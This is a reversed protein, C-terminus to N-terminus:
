LSSPLDPTKNMILGMVRALENAMFPNVGTLMQYFVIGVQFLDTSWDVDGYTERDFQEPAAYSFTGKTGISQSVSEDAMFKGIGWDAIKPIGDKTFLINEPKIDRHVCAMRHAYSLGDLIQLILPKAEKVSLRHDKLLGDLNGGEMLEITMYPVPRINSDLFTVINKHKLKRWIDAEAQFKKLVSSDITEDLFKPLKIAVGVGENNIAKYVTAFGGSGLKDTIIYGPLINKMHSPVKELSTIGLHEKLDEPPPPLPLEDDMHDEDGWVEAEDEKVSEEITVKAAVIEGLAKVAPERKKSKRPKQDPAPAEKKKETPKEKTKAGKSIEAQVTLGIRELEEEREIEHKVEAMRGEIESKRKRKKVILILLLIIFFVPIIIALAIAMPQVGEDQADFVPINEGLSWTFTLQGKTATIVTGDPVAGPALAFIAFGFVDTLAEYSRRTELTFKISVGEVPNNEADVIPGIQFFQEAIDEEEVIITFTLRASKGAKDTVTLTVNYSGLKLFKHTVLGGELKLPNDLLDTSWEYKEIGTDDTSNRGDLILRDGRQVTYEGASGLPEGNISVLVKPDEQDEVAAKEVIIIFSFSDTEGSLPNTVTLTITFIGPIDFVHTLVGGQYELKGAGAENEGIWIYETIDGTSNLADFVVETGLSITLNGGREIPKGNVRPVAKFPIVELVTVTVEDTNKNDSGDTVTLTILYTGQIAFTFDVFEGDLEKAGGDYEFTWSYHTIGINDQSNSGNLTIPENELIMLDEGADADPKITDKVQLHTLNTSINLGSVDFINFLYELDTADRPIMISTEWGEQATSDMSENNIDVGNFSYDLEVKSIGINDMIRASINFEDGTKPLGPTLDELFQPYKNDKVPISIQTSNWANGARDQIQFTYRLPGVHKIDLTIKGRWIDSRNGTSLDISENDDSFSWDVLVKEVGINDHAKIEFTFNDGTYGERPSTDSEFQPPDDDKVPVNKVGSIALNNAADRVYVTYTLDRVDHDTTITAGWYEGMRQLSMNNNKNGHVWNVHVSAVERNDSASINFGFPNGTGVQGGTNDVISPKENDITAYRLDGNTKDYYSIHPHSLDDLAISTFLGVDNQSDVTETVWQGNNLNSAIKLNGNTVDYYSIHHREGANTDIYALSTYKGVDGGQDVQDNHWIGAQVDKYTFLLDQNGSDYYSIRPEDVINLAISSYEGILQGNPDPTQRDWGGGPSQNPMYILNSTSDSYYSIHAKYQQDLALSTYRGSAGNDDLTTINWNGDVMKAYKLKPSNSGDYYSIHVDGNPEVKISSYNGVQASNDVTDIFWANGQLMRAHMLNGNSFYSIHPSQSQLDLTISTYAINNGNDIMGGEWATGNWKLYKLWNNTSDVYSIIPFGNADVAISSYKGCDGLSDITKRYWNNGRSQSEFNENKEAQEISLVNNSTRSREENIFFNENGVLLLLISLVLVGVIAITRKM